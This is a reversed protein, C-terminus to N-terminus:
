DFQRYFLIRMKHPHRREQYLTDEREQVDYQAPAEPDRWVLAVARGGQQAPTGEGAGGLATSEARVFILFLQQRNAFCDRWYSHLFMRDIDFFERYCSTDGTDGTYQGRLPDASLNFDDKHVAKNKDLRIGTGLGKKGGGRAFHNLTSYGNGNAQMYTQRYDKNNAEGDNYYDMLDDYVNEITLDLKGGWDLADFMDEWVKQYVYLDTSSMGMPIEIMSALDEFRRRLFTAVKNVDRGRFQVGNGGDNFMYNKGADLTNMQTKGIATYNTGAVWYNLPANALAALMIEQSQTYPNVYFGQSGNVLGRRYLNAGFEFGEPNTRFSQYSKWAAMACPMLAVKDQEPTATAMERPAGDFLKGGHVNGDVDQRSDGLVSMALGNEKMDSLHPLFALEGVSQLYGLNSVFLFPDSARDGRKNVSGQFEDQVLMNLIANNDDLGNGFVAKYWKQGTPNADDPDFWWNEPAWNFRPDITYCSKYDWENGTPATGAAAQEYTFEMKSQFRMIPMAHQGPTTPPTNGLFYNNVDDSGPGAFGTNDIGNFAKDDEYTAPVMDVTKGDQRVRAWTVLYPRITYQGRLANFTSEDIEGEPIASLLEGNVDFPRLVIEYYDKPKQPDRKEGVVNGQADKEIAYYEIRRLIPKELTGADKFPLLADKWCDRESQMDAPPTWSASDQSPLTVALCNEAPTHSLVGASSGAEIKFQNAEDVNASWEADNLPRFNRAFGNNRLTVSATAGGGGGGGAAEGVFVLRAFAQATCGVPTKGGSFPFVLTSSLGMGSTTIKIKTEYIKRKHDADIAEEQPQAAPVFEVQPHNYPALAALMPVREACPMALSVPVDNKDLYDFLTFQDLICLAHSNLYMTEWFKQSGTSDLVTQLNAGDNEVLGPPFPPNQSLDLPTSSTGDSKVLQSPPFWSSTVFPQREAGKVKPVAAGSAEYLFRTNNAGCALDVFPSWLNGIRQEGISLNYDMLSVLPATAWEGQGPSIHVCQDFQDMGSPNSFNDSQSTSSNRFLYALSFRSAPPKQGASLPHSAAASTRPADAAMKSIDLMDSVNVACFAYRGADFNFYDWKAAWSSRALLRVDNAIAPPLYGLAELNLVSVTKTVPAYRSYPDGSTTGEGDPDPPMFVRSEWWDYACNNRDRYVMNQQNTNWAGPYAHSRVADDVRSMAQALAAKVLYRNAVSRRLASSPLRETRMWIAFAVASVVMFSLFGLVVLLASGQQSHRKM